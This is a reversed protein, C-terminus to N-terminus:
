QRSLPAAQQQKWGLLKEWALAARRQIDGDDHDLYLDCLDELEKSCLPIVTLLWLATLIMNKESSTMMKLVDPLVDRKELTYLAKLTNGRVRNNPDNKFRIIMYVLRPEHLMEIAEIANARVRPDSDQLISRFLHHELSNVFYGLVKVATARVHTVKSRLLTILVKRVVEDDNMYRLLQIAHVRRGESGRRIESLVNALFDPTLKRVVEILKQVEECSLEELRDLLINRIFDAATERAIHSIHENSSQVLPILYKLDHPSAHATFRLLGQIM